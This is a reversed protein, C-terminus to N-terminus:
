PAAAAAALEDIVDLEVEDLQDFFGAAVLDFGADTHFCWGAAGARRAGAVATLFM